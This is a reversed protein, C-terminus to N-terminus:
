VTQGVSVIANERHEPIYSSLPVNCIKIDHDPVDVAPLDDILRCYGVVSTAHLHALVSQVPAAQAAHLQANNGLPTVM